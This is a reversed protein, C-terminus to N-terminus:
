EGTNGFTATAIFCGGSSAKTSSKVNETSSSMRTRKSSTNRLIPNGELPNESNYQNLASQYDRDSSPISNHYNLLENWETSLTERCEEPMLAKFGYYGTCPGNDGSAVFCVELEEHKILAEILERTEKEEVWYSSEVLFPSGFQRELEPAEVHNFIQLVGGSKMTYFAFAVHQVTMHQLLLEVAENANVFVVPVTKSSSEPSILLADSAWSGPSVTMIRVGGVVNKVLPRIKSEKPLDIVVQSVHKEKSKAHYWNAITHKKAM